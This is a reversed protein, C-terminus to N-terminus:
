ALLIVPIPHRNIQRQSFLETVGHGRELVNTAALRLAGTMKSIVVTVGFIKIVWITFQM